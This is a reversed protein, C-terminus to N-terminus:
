FFVIFCLAIRQRQWGCFKFRLMIKIQFAKELTLVVIFTPVKVIQVVDRPGLITPDFEVHGRSTSLAVVAKEVGVQSM